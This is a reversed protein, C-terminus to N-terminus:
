KQEGTTQAVLDYIEKVQMMSKIKKDLEKQAKKIMPHQTDSTAPSSKQAATPKDFPLPGGTPLTLDGQDPASPATDTEASKLKDLVPIADKFKNILDKPSGTLDEDSAQLLVQDIMDSLKDYSKVDTGAMEKSDEKSSTADQIGQIAKKMMKKEISSSAKQKGAKAVQKATNGAAKASRAAAQSANSAAKATSSAGQAMAKGGAAAGRGLMTGGRALLSALAPFIENLEEQIIDEISEKTIKIVIENDKLRSKEKRGRNKSVPECEMEDNEIGNIHHLETGDPCEGHEKDHKRKDRKRKNREEQEKSGPKNYEKSYDRPTDSDKNWEQEALVEEILENVPNLTKKM